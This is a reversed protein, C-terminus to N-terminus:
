PDFCGVVVAQQRICVDTGILIANVNIGTRVSSFMLSRNRSTACEARSRQRRQEIMKLGRVFDAELLATFTSYIDWAHKNISVPSTRMTVSGHNAPGAYLWCHYTKGFGTFTWATSVASTMAM